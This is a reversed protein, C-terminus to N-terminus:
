ATPEERELLGPGRRIRLQLHEVHHALLDREVALKRSQADRQQPLELAHVTQRIRQLLQQLVGPGQRPTAAAHGDALQKVDVFSRQGLGNPGETQDLALESRIGRQAGAAQAERRVQAVRLALDRQEVLLTWVVGRRTLELAEAQGQGAEPPVRLGLRQQPARELGIAVIAVHDLGQLGDQHGASLGGVQDPKQVSVIWELWGLASGTDRSVAQAKGLLQAVSIRRQAPHAAALQHLAERSPLEFAPQLEFATDSVAGSLDGGQAGQNGLDGVVLHTTRAHRLEGLQESCSTLELQRAIAVFLSQPERGVWGSHPECREVLDEGPLARREPARAQQAVQRPVGVEIRALSIAIPLQAHLHEGRM